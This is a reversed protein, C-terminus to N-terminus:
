IKKEIFIDNLKDLYKDSDNSSSYSLGDFYIDLNNYFERLWYNLKKETNPM